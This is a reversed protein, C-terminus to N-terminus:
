GIYNGGQSLVKEIDWKYVYYRQKLTSEKIGVLPSWNVFTLEKDKFKFKHTTRRNDAQEKKTAFRCNDPSYDGNNDIRDITFGDKYFQGIDEWYNDFNLWRDCVKIGRAGYRFYETFKPNYCRHKM